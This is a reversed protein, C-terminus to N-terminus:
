INVKDRTINAVVKQLEDVSFLVINDCLQAQLTSQNLIKKLDEVNLQNINQASNNPVDKVIITYTPTNTDHPPSLTPLQTDQVSQDIKKEDVIEMEDKKQQAEEVITEEKEKNAEEEKDDDEEEGNNRGEFPDEEGEKVITLGYILKLMQTSKNVVDEINNQLIFFARYKPSFKRAHEKNEKTIRGKILELIVQALTKERIQKEVNLFYHWKNDVITYLEKPMTNDLEVHTNKLKAM